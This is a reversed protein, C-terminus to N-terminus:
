SIVRLKLHLLEPRAEDVAFPHGTAQTLANALETATIPAGLVVQIRSEGEQFREVSASSVQALVVLAKQVEMLAQFGPIGALALTIGEGGPHFAPEPTAPQEQPAQEDAPPTAMASFQEVMASMLHSMSELHVVLRDLSGALNTLQNALVARQDSDEALHQELRQGLSQFTLHQQQLEDKLSDNNLGANQLESLAGALLRAARAIADDQRETLTM